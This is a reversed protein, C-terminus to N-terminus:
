CNWYKQRDAGLGFDIFHRTEAKDKLVVNDMVTSVLFHSCHFLSFLLCPLLVEVNVCSRSGSLLGVPSCQPGSDQRVRTFAQPQRM